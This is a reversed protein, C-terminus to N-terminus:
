GAAAATQKIGAIVLKIMFDFSDHLPNQDGNSWRVMFAHNQMLSLNSILAPFLNRNLNDIEGHFANETEAASHVAQSLELTTWGVLCGIYANYAHLLDAERLGGDVMIRLVREVFPLAPPSVTLQSGVVPALNPHQRMQARFRHATEYLWLDWSMAQDDPLELDDFVLASTAHLLKSKGGVHWTVATPYVGLADAVKRISLASLGHEDVIGLAVRLIQQKSLPASQEDREDPASGATSSSM